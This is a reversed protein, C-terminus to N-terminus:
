NNRIEKFDIEIKGYGLLNKVLGMIRNEDIIITKKVL